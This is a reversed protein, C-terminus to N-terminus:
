ATLLYQACEKGSVSLQEEQILLISLVVMSFINWSWDGRIFTASGTPTLGVVGQDGAMHVSKVQYQVCSKLLHKWGFTIM